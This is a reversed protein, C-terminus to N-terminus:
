RGTRGVREVDVGYDARHDETDGDAHQRHTDRQQERDEGVALDAAAGDIARQQDPGVGDRRGIEATRHSNM